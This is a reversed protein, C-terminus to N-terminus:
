PLPSVEYHIHRIAEDLAKKRLTSGVLFPEAKYLSWWLLDQVNVARNMRGDRLVSGCTKANCLPHILHGSKHKVLKLRLCDNPPLHIRSRQPNYVQPDPLSPGTCPPNLDALKPFGMDLVHKLFTTTDLISQNLLPPSPPVQYWPHPYYLDEKACQNRALNWDVLDYDTVFLEERLSKVLPTIEGVAKLGYLYSM